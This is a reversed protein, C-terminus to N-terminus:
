SLINWLRKKLIQILSKDTIYLMVLLISVLLAIGVFPTVFSNIYILDGIILLAYYSLLFVILISLLSAMYKLFSIQTLQKVIVYSLTYWIFQAVIMTSLMSEIGFTSSIYIIVPNVLFMVINWKFGFDPRNKSLWLTAINATSFRLFYLVSFYILLQIYQSYEGKVIFTTLYDKSIYLSFYIFCLSIILLKLYLRYKKNFQVLDSQLKSLEPFYVRNMTFVFLNGVRFSIDRFVAYVGLIALGLTKAIIIKDAEKAFYNLLAEGLQFLGYRVMIVMNELKVKFSPVYFQRGVVFFLISNVTVQCLTGYVFAVAKFDQFVLLVIISGWVLRSVIEIIAISKFRLHKRLLNLYIQSFPTIIFAIALQELLGSLDENEFFEAVTGSLLYLSFAILISFCINIWFINNLDNRRIDPVSIIYNTLGLGSFLQFLGYVILLVSIKGYETPELYRTFFIILGIQVSFSVLTSLGTWAVGKSTSGM